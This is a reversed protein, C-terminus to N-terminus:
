DRTCCCDCCPEPEASLPSVVVCETYKGPMQYSLSKVTDGEMKKEPKSYIPKAAWPKEPPPPLETPVYSLKQVTYQAFPGTPKEISNAVRVQKVKVQNLDHPVFSLKNTTMDSIPVDSEVVIPKPKCSEVRVIPKEVYDIKSTTFDQMPDDSTYKKRCPLFPRAPAAKDYKVYSLNNMTDGSMKGEGVSMNHQPRFGTTKQMECATFSKRYVSSDEMKTHAPTYTSIPKCSQPPPERQPIPFSKRYITDDSMRTEPAVFSKKQAWPKPDPEPLEWPLFSLRNVTNCDVKGKFAIQPHPPRCTEAKAEKINMPVYSLRNTTKDSIPVTQSIPKPIPTCSKTKDTSKPVFDHMHTTVTQMPGSGLLNHRCPYFPTSPEASVQQYTLKHVTNNSMKGEGVNLNTKPRIQELKILEGPLFTDRYVSKDSMKTTPILYTGIPKFSLPREPQVYKCELKPPSTSSIDKKLKCRACNPLCNCLKTQKTNTGNLRNRILTKVGCGDLGNQPPM